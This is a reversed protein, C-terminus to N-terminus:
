GEEKPETEENTEEITEGATEVSGGAAEVKEIASPVATKVTIKIASGVTGGGLLKEYGHESLDVEGAVSAEQLRVKRRLAERLDEPDV